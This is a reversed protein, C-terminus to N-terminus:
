QPRTGTLIKVGASNAYPPGCDSLASRRLHITAPPVIGQGADLANQNKDIAEQYTVEAGPAPGVCNKTGPPFVAHNWTDDYYAGTSAPNGGTVQGIM